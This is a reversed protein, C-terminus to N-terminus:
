TASASCPSAGDPSAPAQEISAFMAQGNDPIDGHGYTSSVIVILDYGSLVEGGLGDMLRRDATLGTPNSRPPSIEDACMEATGTMTAIFIGARCSSM